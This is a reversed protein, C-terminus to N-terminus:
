WYIIVSLLGFGGLAAGSLLMVAWYQRRRREFEPDDYSCFRSRWTFPAHFWQRWGYRRGYHSESADVFRADTVSTVVVVVTALIAFAVIQLDL